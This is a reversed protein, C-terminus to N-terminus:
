IPTCICSSVNDKEADDMRIHKKAKVIATPELISEKEYTDYTIKGQVTVYAGTKILPVM